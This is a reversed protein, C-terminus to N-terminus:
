SSSSQWSEAPRGRRLVARLFLRSPMAKVIRAAIALGGRDSLFDALETGSVGRALAMFLAPAQDPHNQLVDLFLRDMAARWRPEPPHGILASLGHREVQRANRRAWDQIRRFAYGTAARVAGGRTGALRIRPDTPPPMAAIGMPIIGREASPLAAARPFLSAAIRRCDAELRSWPLIRPTFRTEEVLVRDRGLPLSYVFRFGHEDASMDTMLEVRQPNGVPEALRLVHGVFQQYLRAKLPSHDAHNRTDVIHRASTEFGEGRIAVAHDGSTLETVAVGQILQFEPREDIRALCHQRHILASVAAYHREDGGEHLVQNGDRDAFRWSRWQGLLPWPSHQLEGPTAWFAFGRDPPPDARAEIVAVKLRAGGESEALAAALSLGASGAGLIALDFRAASTM